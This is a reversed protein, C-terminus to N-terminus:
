RAKNAAELEERKEREKQSSSSSSSRRSAMSVAAFGGAGIKSQLDLYKKKYKLYKLKYIEEQSSM